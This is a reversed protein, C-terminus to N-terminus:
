VVPKSNLTITVVVLYHTCSQAGGLENDMTKCGQKVDLM